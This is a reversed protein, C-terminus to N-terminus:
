PITLTPVPVPPVIPTPVPVPPVIPTLVSVPPVIPPENEDSKNETKKPKSEPKSFAFVDSSCIQNKNSAYATVGWKYYGSKPMTEIYRILVTDSTKFGVTLGNPYIFTLIYFNAGAQSEWAFEVREVSSLGADNGPHILSLCRLPTQTPTFAIPTFATPTFAINAVIELPRTALQSPAPEPMDPVPTNLPACAVLSFIIIFLHIAKV